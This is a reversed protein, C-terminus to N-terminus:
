EEQGDNQNQWSLYIAAVVTEFFPNIGEKGVTVGENRTLIENWCVDVWENETRAAKLDSSAAIRCSNFPIGKKSLKENMRPVDCFQVREKGIKSM